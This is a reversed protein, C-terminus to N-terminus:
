RPDLRHVVTIPCTCPVEPDIKLDMNLRVTGDIVEM